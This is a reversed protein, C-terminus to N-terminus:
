KKVGALVFEGILQEGNTKRKAAAARRDEETRRELDLMEAVANTAFDDEDVNAGPARRAESGPKARRGSRIDGLIYGVHVAVQALRAEPQSSQYRSAWACVKTCADRVITAGDHRKAKPEAEILRRIKTAAVFLAEDTVTPPPWVDRHEALLDAFRLDTPNAVPQDEQTDRARAVSGSGSLSSSLSPSLKRQMCRQDPLPSAVPETNGATADRQMPTADANGATADRTEATNKRAARWRRSRETAASGLRWAEWSTVEVWRKGEDEVASLMPERGGFLRSSADRVEEANGGLLDHLADALEVDAIIEVRGDDRRAKACIEMFIFRVARPLARKSGETISVYFPVFERPLPTAM